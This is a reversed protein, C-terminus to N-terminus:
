PKAETRERYRALISGARVSVCKETHPGPARVSGDAWEVAPRDCTCISALGGLAEALKDAWQRPVTLTQLVRIHQEAAELEARLQDRQDTLANLLRQVGPSVETGEAKFRKLEARIGNLEARWSDLDNRAGELEARLDAAHREAAFRILKDLEDLSADCGWREIQEAAETWPDTSM